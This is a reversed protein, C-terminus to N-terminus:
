FELDEERLLQSRAQGVQNIAQSNEMDIESKNLIEVINMGEGEQQAVM